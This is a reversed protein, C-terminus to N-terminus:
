VSHYTSDLANDMKSSSCGCCEDAERASEIEAVEQTRSEHLSVERSESYSKIETLLYNFDDKDDLDLEPEIDAQMAMTTMFQRDNAFGHDM